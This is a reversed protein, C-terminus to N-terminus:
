AKRTLVTVASEKATKKWLSSNSKGKVSAPLQQKLLLASHKCRKKKPEHVNPQVLTAESAM